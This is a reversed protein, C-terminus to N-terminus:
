LGWEDRDQKKAGAGAVNAEGQFEEAVKKFGGHGKNREKSRFDIYGAMDAIKALMSGQYIYKGDANPTMGEPWYPDSTTVPSGGFKASYDPLNDVDIFKLIYKPRSAADYYDSTKVYVKKSFIYIGTARDSREKDWDSRDLDIIHTNLYALDYLPM